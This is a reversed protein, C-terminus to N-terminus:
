EQEAWSDLKKSLIWLVVGFVIVIGGLLGYAFGFNQTLTWAYIKPYVFQSVFVAVPWTGLLLGLLKAPALKNIFSNGLPSFVMEGVSMMICVLGIWLVSCQGNEGALKDAFVMVFYALGLLGCGLGTKKYMSMDGQPRRALKLWVGALVPGLVVCTLANVSDFWSTPIKFNGIVWNAKNLYEAGDGWGFRFYAPFYALYWLMWFVM